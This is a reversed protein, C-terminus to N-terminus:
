KWKNPTHQEMFTSITSWEQESVEGRRSRGDRDRKGDGDDNSRDEGGRSGRREHDDRRQPGKRDSDDGSRGRQAPATTPHDGSPIAPVGAACAAGMAIVLVRSRLTQLQRTMAPFGAKRRSPGAKRRSPSRSTSCRSTTASRRSKTFPETRRLKWPITKRRTGHSHPPPM